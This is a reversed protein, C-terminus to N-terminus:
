TEDTRRESRFYHSPFVREAKWKPFKRSNWVEHLAVEFPMVHFKQAHRLSLFLLSELIVIILYVGLDYVSAGLMLLLLTPPVLFLLIQPELSSRRWSCVVFNALILFVFTSLIITLIVLASNFLYIRVCAGFLSGIITSILTSGCVHMLDYRREVINKLAKNENLRHVYDFFVVRHHSDENLEYKDSLQELLNNFESFRQYNGMLFRNFIAYWVQSVLFGLAGGGLLSLFALFAAVLTVQEAQLL